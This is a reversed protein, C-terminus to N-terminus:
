RMEKNAWHDLKKGIKCGDAHFLKGVKCEPCICRSPDTELIKKVLTDDIIELMSLRMYDSDQDMATRINKDKNEDRENHLYLVSFSGDPYETIRAKLERKNLLDEMKNIFISIDKDLTIRRVGDLTIRHVYGDYYKTKKPDEPDYGTVRVHYLFGLKKSKFWSLKSITISAIAIIKIISAFEKDKSM